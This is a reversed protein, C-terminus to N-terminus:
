GDGIIIRTDGRIYLAICHKDGIPRRIPEIDAVIREIRSQLSVFCALHKGGCHEAQIEVRSHLWISCKDSHCFIHRSYQPRKKICADGLLACSIGMNPM